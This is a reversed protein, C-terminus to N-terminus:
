IIMTSGIGEIQEDFTMEVRIGSRRLQPTFAPRQPEIRVAGQWLGRLFQEAGWVDDRFWAATRRADLAERVLEREVDDDHTM